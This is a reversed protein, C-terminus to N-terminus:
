KFICLRTGFRLADTQLIRLLWFRRKRVQTGCNYIYFVKPRWLRIVLMTGCSLVYRGAWWSLWAIGITQTTSRRCRRQNGNMNLPYPTNSLCQQRGNFLFASVFFIVSLKLLSFWNWFWGYFIWADEARWPRIVTMQKMGVPQSQKGKFFRLFGMEKASHCRSTIDILVKRSPDCFLM